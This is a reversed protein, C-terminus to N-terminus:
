YHGNHMLKYLKIRLPLKETVMTVPTILVPYHLYLLMFVHVPVSGSGHPVVYPFPHHGVHVFIQYHVFSGAFAHVGQINTKTSSM